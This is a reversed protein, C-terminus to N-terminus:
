GGNRAIAQCVGAILQIQPDICSLDVYEDPRHANGGVLGMGDITPTGVASAFNGDSCGGTAIHGIQIGAEAASREFLDWLQMTREDAEMPPRGVGGSVSVRVGPVHTRDPLSAFFSEVPAIDRKRAVRVDVSARAADPIINTKTGGAIVTVNASVSDGARQNFKQVTLIQHAIEVAANAGLEPEVGAHASMGTATIRFSGGGKRKLVFRYGPRCPEFVFARRSSVAQAQIWARSARSGVEEDGNFCVKVSLRDLLGRGHLTELVHLAMLLGGKMDCVGPGTARDGAVAFPRRQVEGASFVTDMHGIMLLDAKQDAAVNGAQLCPVGRDGLKELCVTLGIAELRPALFHAVKEIGAIHDSGSDINVLTKLDHIFSDSRSCSNAKM